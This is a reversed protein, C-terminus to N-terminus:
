TTYLNQDGDMEYNSHFYLIYYFKSSYSLNTEFVSSDHTRVWIQPWIFKKEIKTNERISLESHSVFVQKEGAM